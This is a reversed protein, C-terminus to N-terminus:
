QLRTPARFFHTYSPSDEKAEAIMLEENVVEQMAPIRDVGAADKVRGATAFALKAMNM